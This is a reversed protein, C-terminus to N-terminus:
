SWANEESNSGYQIQQSSGPNQKEERHVYKTYVSTMIPKQLVGETKSPPSTKMTTGTTGCASAKNGKGTRM